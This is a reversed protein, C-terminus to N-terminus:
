GLVQHGRRDHLLMLLLPVLLGLVLIRPLFQPFALLDFLGRHILSRQYGISVSTDVVFVVMMMSHSGRLGLRPRNCRLAQLSHCVSMGHFLSRLRVHRRGQGCPCRHMAIWTKGSIMTMISQANFSAALFHSWGLNVKIMLILTLAFSKLIM